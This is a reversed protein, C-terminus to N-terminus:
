DCNDCIGTLPMQQFCNPCQDGERAISSVGKAGPHVKTLPHEVYWTPKRTSPGTGTGIGTTSVIEDKSKFGNTYGYYIHLDPLGARKAIVHSKDPKVVARYSVIATADTFKQIFAHNEAPIRAKALASLLTEPPQDEPTTM